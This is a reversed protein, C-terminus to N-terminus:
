QVLPGECSELEFGIIQAKGALRKLYHNIGTQLSRTELYERIHAQVLEFPLAQGTSQDKFRQPNNEFYRRCSEEDADMFEVEKHILQGIADEEVSAPFTNLKAILNQEVAELLLLKRIVLAHAAKHRAESVNKSPHHQMEEHVEDDLIEIDNVFIPM